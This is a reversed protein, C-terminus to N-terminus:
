TAAVGRSRRTSGSTSCFSAPSFAHLHTSANLNDVLQSSIAPHALVLAIAANARESDSAIVASFRRAVEPPVRGALTREVAAGLGDLARGARLLNKRAGSAEDETRWGQGAYALMFEYTGEIADIRRALDGADVKADHM